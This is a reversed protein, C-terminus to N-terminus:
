VFKLYKSINMCCKTRPVKTHFRQGLTRSSIVPFSYINCIHLTSTETQDIVFHRLQMTSFKSSNSIYQSMKVTLFLNHTYQSTTIVVNHPRIHLPLPTFFVKHSLRQSFSRTICFTKCLSPAKCGQHRYKSLAPMHISAHYLAGRPKSCPPSKQM